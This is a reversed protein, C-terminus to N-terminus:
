PCTPHRRSINDLFSRALGEAIRHVEPRGPGEVLIRMLPETGSYRVFVRGRGTLRREAAAVSRGFDQLKSLPVREQVRINRLLQPTHRYLSRFRSMPGGRGALV